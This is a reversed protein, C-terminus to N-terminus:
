TIVRKLKLTSIWCVQLMIFVASSNQKCQLNHHQMQWSWWTEQLRHTSLPQEYHQPLQTNHFTVNPCHCNHSTHCKSTVPLQILVAACLNFASSNRLGVSATCDQIHQDHCQTNKYMSAHCQPGKYMSATIGHARIRAPQSATHQQVQQGHHQISHYMRAVSISHVSSCALWSATHEQVHQCHHYSSKYMSAIISHKRTHAHWLVTYEQIQKGCYQISRYTSAVNSYVRTCALWSATHEQVHQCHHDASKYMSAMISHKTTHAQWLITYETHAQWLVTYEQMHKGCYQISRYTSAVTSYLPTCALWSATQEQVCQGHYQVSKYMSTM